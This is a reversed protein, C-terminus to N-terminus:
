SVFSKADNVNETIYYPCNPGTYRMILGMVRHYKLPIVLSIKGVYRNMKDKLERAFSGVSWLKQLSLTELNRADIAINIRDNEVAAEFIIRILNFTNEEM